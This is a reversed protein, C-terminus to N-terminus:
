LEDSDWFAADADPDSDIEIAEHNAEKAKVFASLIAQIVAILIALGAKM